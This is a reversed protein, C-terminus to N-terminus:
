SLKKLVPEMGLYNSIEKLKGKSFMWGKGGTKLPIYRGNCNNFHEKHPLTPGRVAFSRDSYDELWIKETSCVDLEERGSVADANADRSLTEEVSARAEKVVNSSLATNVSMGRMIITLQRALKQKLEDISSYEEQIGKNRISAKFARLKDLQATDLADLDPSRKSYYLMVPKNNKLFWKIEEVTGSDEEGTPSGLRTWFAGVLLDCNGVVQHNIIGQPREGMSPACHSEWMVPLLVKATDKAHLANWERLSEAIAEREDPVDSPSAILVNFVTASFPM